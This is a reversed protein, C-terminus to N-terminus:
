AGAERVYFLPDGNTGTTGYITTTGGGVNVQVKITHSGAPVQAATLHEFFTVTSAITTSGNYFRGLYTTISGDVLLEFKTQAPSSNFLTVRLFVDLGGGQTTITTTMGTLDVFTGSTTTFDSAFQVKGSETPTKLFTENDRIHANMIAATVLEGVSWSRPSTWTTM